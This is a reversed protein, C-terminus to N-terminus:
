KMLSYQNLFDVLKRTNEDLDEEVGHVTVYHCIDKLLVVDEGSFNKDEVTLNGEADIMGMKQAQLTMREIQSQMGIYHAFHPPIVTFVLYVLFVSIFMRRFPVEKKLLMWVVYSTALLGSILLFVRTETFRYQEIEEFLSIWFGFLLPIVIMPFSKFIKTFFTKSYHGISLKYIMGLVIALLTIEMYGYSYFNDKVIFSLLAIYLVVTISLTLAPLAFNVVYGFIKHFAGRETRNRYWFCVLLTEAFLLMMVVPFYDTGEKLPYGALDFIYSAATYFLALTLFALFLMEGKEFFRAMYEEPEKSKHHSLFLLVVSVSVYLISVIERLYYNKLNAVVLLIILTLLFYLSRFKGTFTNSLVNVLLIVIPAFLVLSDGFVFPSILAILTEMPYRKLLGKITQKLSSLIKEM